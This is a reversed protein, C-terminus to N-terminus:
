THWHKHSNGRPRFICNWIWRNECLFKRLCYRLIEIVASWTRHSRVRMHRYRHPRHNWNMVTGSDIEGELSGGGGGVGRERTPGCEFQQRLLNVTANWEFRDGYRNKMFLLEACKTNLLRHTWIYIKMRFTKLNLDLLIKVCKPWKLMQLYTSNRENLSNLLKTM